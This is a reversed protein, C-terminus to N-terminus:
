IGRIKRYKPPNSINKRWNEITLSRVLRFKSPRESYMRPYGLAELVNGAYHEFQVIDEKSLKTRWNSSLAPDPMRGVNKHQGERMARSMFQPELVLQREDDVRFDVCVFELVRNLVKLPKEVLDEYKVTIVKKENAVQAVFGISISEIWQRASTAPTNPGWELPMVSSAVARGDRILNIFKADPFVSLIKSVNRINPPTHDVWYEPRHGHYMELLRFYFQEESVANIQDAGEVGWNKFLRSKSLEA